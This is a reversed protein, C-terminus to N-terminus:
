DATDARRDLGASFLDFEAPDKVGRARYVYDRHWPDTPLSKAHEHGVLLQLTPPYEGHARKYAHLAARLERVDALVQQHKGYETADGMRYVPVSIAAAAAALVLGVKVPARM